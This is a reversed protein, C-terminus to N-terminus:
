NQFYIRDRAAGKFPLHLHSLIHTASRQSSIELFERLEQNTITPKILLFYDEIALKYLNNEVCGCIKCICKNRKIDLAASNCNQCLVGKIIDSPSIEFKQLINQELPTNKTLLLRKLKGLIKTDSRDENYKMEFKRIKNILQDSKCVIEFAKKYGSSANIITSPNSIIVLHEIPLENFKYISLWNILHDHQREAQTIPNSFCETKENRKRFLQDFDKELFLEGSYNKVELILSFKTSILLFDIQFAQDHYTLRLDHFIIYPKFHPLNLFYKLSLEGKYGSRRKYLKEEVIGRKPHEKPLRRLLAELIFIISPPAIEKAFM